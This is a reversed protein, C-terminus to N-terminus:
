CFIEGNLDLRFSLKCCFQTNVDFVFHKAIIIRSKLLLFLDTFLLTISRRSIGCECVFFIVEEEYIKM